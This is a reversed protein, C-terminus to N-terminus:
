GTCRDKFSLSSSTQSTLGPIEANAMKTGANYVVWDPDGFNELEEATPRILMNHMFLAHYVRTCIIRVKIRTKPDWGAFGDIVYIVDRSNLYAVADGKLMHFAEESLPMNVKGWWIDAKTDADEMIRKETPSRGTKEGSMAILAGTGSPVYEEKPMAIKYMMAVSPNRIIKKAAIGQKSCDVTM